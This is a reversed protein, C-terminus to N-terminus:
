ISFENPRTTCLLKENELSVTLSSSHFCPNKLWRLHYLFHLNKYFMLSYYDVIYNQKALIQMKQIM